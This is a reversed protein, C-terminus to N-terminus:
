IKQWLGYTNLIVGATPLLDIANRTSGMIGLALMIIAILIFYIIPINGNNRKNYVCNRVLCMINM